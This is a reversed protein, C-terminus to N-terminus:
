SSTSRSEIITTLRSPRSSSNLRAFSSFPMWREHRLRGMESCRIPVMTSRMM